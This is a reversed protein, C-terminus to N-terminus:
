ETASAPPPTTAGAQFMPSGDTRTVHGTDDIGHSGNLTVVTEKVPQSISQPTPWRDAAEMTEDFEVDPYYRETIGGREDLGQSGMATIIEQVRTRNETGDARYGLMLPTLGAFVSEM